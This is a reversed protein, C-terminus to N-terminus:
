DFRHHIGSIDIKSSMECSYGSDDEPFQESFEDELGSIEEKIVRPNDNNQSEQTNKETKENEIEEIYERPICLFTFFLLFYMGAQTYYSYRWAKFEQDFIATIGYGLVVGLPVSSQLITLWITKYKEYAFLDVWVPFYICLFVQFFGVGFRFVSLVFFDRVLTFGILCVMNFLICVLIINKVCFHHFTPPSTFSGALLGCYVASGLLGLSANDLGLDKKITVTCAPICGHDVNVLINTICIVVFCFIHSASMSSKDVTHTMKSPEEDVKDLLEIKGIIDDDNKKQSLGKSLLSSEEEEERRESIKNKSKNNSTTTGKTEESPKKLHNIEAMENIKNLNTRDWNINLKRRSSSYTVKKEDGYIPHLNNNVSTLNTKPSAISQKSFVNSSLRDNSTAKNYKSEKKQDLESDYDESDLNSDEKINDSSSDM